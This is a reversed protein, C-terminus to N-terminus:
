PRGGTFLFSRLAELGQPLDPHPPPPPVQRPSPDLTALLDPWDEPPAIRLGGERSLHSADRAAHPDALVPIGATLGLRAAGIGEVEELRRSERDIVTLTEAGFAKVLRQATVPGVGKILGSALFREIGEATAPPYCAM